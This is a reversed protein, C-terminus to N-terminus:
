PLQKQCNLIQYNHNIKQKKPKYKMILGKLKILLDIHNYIQSSTTTFKIIEAQCVAAM